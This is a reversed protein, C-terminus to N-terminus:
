IETNLHTDFLSDDKSKLNQDSSMSLQLKVITARKHLCM